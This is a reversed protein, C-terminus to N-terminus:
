PLKPMKIKKFIEGAMEKGTCTPCWKKGMMDEAMKGGCKYCVKWNYVQIWPSMTPYIRKERLMTHFAARAQGHATVKGFPEHGSADVYYADIQPDNAEMSWIFGGGRLPSYRLSSVRPRWAPNPNPTGKEWPARADSSFKAIAEILAAEARTVDAQTPIPKAM